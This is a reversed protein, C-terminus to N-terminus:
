ELLLSVSYKSGDARELSLPLEQGAPKSMLKKGEYAPCGPIECGDITVLKDGVKIGAEKAPSNPAIEKVKIDSLEPSFFGSVSVELTLGSFGKDEAHCYFSLLIFLVFFTILKM